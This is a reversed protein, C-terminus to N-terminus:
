DNSKNGKSPNIFDILAVNKGFSARFHSCFYRELDENLVKIMIPIQKIFGANVRSLKLVLSCVFVGAIVTGSFLTYM